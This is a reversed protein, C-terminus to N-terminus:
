DCPVPNCTGWMNLKANRAANELGQYEAFRDDGNPSIHLVCAQGNELLLRNVENGQVSVYALLRGYVDRCEEDYELTVTQDLVLAENYDAAEQGWCENKGDTIEPTDVLIYRIRHGTELIITDGDIVRDVVGEAPGCLPEGTDSTVTTDGENTSDDANADDTNAVLPGGFECASLTLMCALVLLSRAAPVSANHRLRPAKVLAL